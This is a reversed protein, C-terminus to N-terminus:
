INPIRRYSVKRFDPQSTEQILAGIIFFILRLNRIFHNRNQPNKSYKHLYVLLLKNGLSPCLAGFGYTLKFLVHKNKLFLRPEGSAPFVKNAFASHRRCALCPTLNM